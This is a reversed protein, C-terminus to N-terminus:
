LFELANEAVVFNGDETYREVGDARYKDMGLVFRFFFLHQIILNGTPREM